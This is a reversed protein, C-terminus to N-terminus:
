LKLLNITKIELRDEQIYHLLLLKPCPRHSCSYMKLACILIKLGLMWTTERPQLENLEWSRWVFLAWCCLMFKSESWLIKTVIYALLVFSTYKGSSDVALYFLCVSMRIICELHLRNIHSWSSAFFFCFDASVSMEVWSGNHLNHWTSRGQATDHLQFREAINSCTLIIAFQTAKRLIRTLVQNNRNSDCM